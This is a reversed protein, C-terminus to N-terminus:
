GGTVDFYGEPIDNTRIVRLGQIQLNKPEKIDPMMKAKVMEKILHISDAENMIIYSPTKGKNSIGYQKIEIAIHQLINKSLLNM